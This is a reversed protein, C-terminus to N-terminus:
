YYGRLQVDGPPSLSFRNVNTNPAPRLAAWRAQSNLFASGAGFISAILAEDARADLAAAQFTSDAVRQNISAERGHSEAIDLLGHARLLDIDVAGQEVTHAMALLPSGTTIDLNGAAFHVKQAGLTYDIKDRLRAEDVATRRRILDRRPEELAASAKLVRTNNRAITAQAQANERAVMGSYLAGGVAVGAGLRSFSQQFDCM